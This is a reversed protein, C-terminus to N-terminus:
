NCTVATLGGFVYSTSRGGSPERTLIKRDILNQIDRLATDQSCKAITAWKSTNLKGEFGHRKNEAFVDPDEFLWAFRYIQPGHNSETM